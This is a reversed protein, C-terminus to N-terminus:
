FEAQGDPWGSYAACHAMERVDNWQNILMEFECRYEVPIDLREDPLWRDSGIPNYGRGDRRDVDFFVLDVEETRRVDIRIRIHNGDPTNAGITWFRGRKYLAACNTHTHRVATGAHPQANDSGTRGGEDADTVVGSHWLTRGIGPLPPCHRRPKFLEEKSRKQLSRRGM